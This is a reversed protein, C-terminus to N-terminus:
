RGVSEKNMSPLYIKNNIKTSVMGAGNVQYVNDRPLFQYIHHVGRKMPSSGVTSLNNIGPILHSETLGREKM